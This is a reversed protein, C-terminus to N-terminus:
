FHSQWSLFVSFLICQKQVYLLFKLITDVNFIHMICLVHLLESCNTFVSLKDFIALASCSSLNPHVFGLNSLNKTILLTNTLNWIWFTRSQIWVWSNFDTRKEIHFPQWSHKRHQHNVSSYNNLLMQHALLNGRNKLLLRWYYTTIKTIFGICWSALKYMHYFVLQVCWLLHIPTMHTQNHPFILYQQLYDDNEALTSKSIENPSVTALAWQCSQFVLPPAERASFRAMIRKTAEFMTIEINVGTRTFFAWFMQLRQISRMARHSDTGFGFHGQKLILAVWWPVTLSEWANYLIWFCPVQTVKAKFGFITSCRKNTQSSGSWRYFLFITKWWMKVSLLLHIWQLLGFLDIKHSCDLWAKVDNARRM